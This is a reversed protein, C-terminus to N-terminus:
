VSNNSPPSITIRRPEVKPVKNAHSVTANSVINGTSEYTSGAVSSEWYLHCSDAQYLEETKEDPNYYDRATVVGKVFLDSGVRVMSGVTLRTEPHPGLLILITWHGGVAVDLMEMTNVCEKFGVVFVRGQFYVSLPFACHDDNMTPFPHWQWKEGGGGGGSGEEGSRRTLLETTCLFVNGKGVGGIVLVGSDPINVATCHWRKEIMPPLPSWRSSLVLENERKLGGQPIIVFSFFVLFTVRRGSTTEFVENIHVGDSNEPFGCFVFIESETTACAPLHRSHIMDPLSSIQGTSPDFLDVSRSEPDGGILVLRNQFAFIKTYGKDPIKLKVDVKSCETNYVWLRLANNQRALIALRETSVSTQGEPGTSTSPMSSSVIPEGKATKRGHALCWGFFRTFSAAATAITYLTSLAVHTFYSLESM